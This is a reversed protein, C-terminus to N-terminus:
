KVDFILRKAQGVSRRHCFSVVRQKFTIWIIAYEGTHKAVITTWEDFMVANCRKRTDNNLEKGYLLRPVM